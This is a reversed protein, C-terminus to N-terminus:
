IYNIYSLFSSELSYVSEVLNTHRNHQQELLLIDQNHSYEYSNFLQKLHLFRVKKILKPFQEVAM